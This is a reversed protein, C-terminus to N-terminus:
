GQKKDAHRLVPLSALAAAMGLIIVISGFVFDNTSMSTIERFRLVFPSIILWIGVLVQLIMLYFLTKM